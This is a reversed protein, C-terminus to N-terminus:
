ESRKQLLEKISNIEDHIGKCESEIYKLAFSYAKLTLPIIGGFKRTFEEYSPM